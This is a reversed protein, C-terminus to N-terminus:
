NWRKWRLLIEGELLQDWSWKKRWLDQMIQKATLMAPGALNLPDFVSCITSLVGRM